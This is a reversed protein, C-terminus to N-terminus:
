ERTNAALDTEDWTQRMGLFPILLEPLRSSSKGAGAAQSGDGLQKKRPAM